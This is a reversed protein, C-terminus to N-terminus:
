VKSAIEAYQQETSKMAEELRPVYYKELRENVYCNYTWGEADKTVNNEEAGEPFPNGIRCIRGSNNKCNDEWAATDPRAMAKAHLMSAENIEDSFRLNDDKTMPWHWKRTTMKDYESHNAASLVTVTSYHVFHLLVYDPRYIQKEAPM